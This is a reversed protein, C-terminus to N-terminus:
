LFQCIIMLFWLICASSMLVNLWFAVRMRIRLQKIFDRGSDTIEVMANLRDIFLADLTTMAHIQQLDKVVIDIAMRGALLPPVGVRRMGVYFIAVVQHIDHEGLDSM